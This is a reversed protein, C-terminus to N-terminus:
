SRAPLLAATRLLKVKTELADNLSEVLFRSAPDKALALKCQAIADDIVKLNREIVSVTVPDLQARRQEVIAHLRAIETAYVQEASPKRNSSAFRASSSTAAQPERRVTAPRPEAPSTTPATDAPAATIPNSLPAERSGNDTTDAATAVRAATRTGPQLTFYRTTISTVAVLVVAAAAVFAWRQWRHPMHIRDNAGSRLPIVPADIRDAIGQWLDRGPELVPLNAAEMRLKRLDALLSGCEDCALAHAELAARSAEDVDRELLDALREAFEDCLVNNTM